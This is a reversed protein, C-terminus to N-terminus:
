DVPIQGLHERYSQNNREGVLTVTAKLTKVSMPKLTFKPFDAKVGM